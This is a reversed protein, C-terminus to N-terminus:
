AKLAVPLETIRVAFCGDVAVLQGRAVVKGELVMDVPQDLTRDLLLVQHEKAALLEGVSLETHGVCVQLRARVSHIPNANELIPAPPSARHASDGQLDGLSIIQATPLAVGTRGPQHVKESSM